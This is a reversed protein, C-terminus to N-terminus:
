MGSSVTPDDEAVIGRPEPKPAPRHSPAAECEGGADRGVAAFIGAIELSTLHISFLESAELFELAAIGEVNSIEFGQIWGAGQSDAGPIVQIDNVM